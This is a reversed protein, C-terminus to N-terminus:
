TLEDVKSQLERRLAMRQPWPTAQWARRAIRRARKGRHPHILAEYRNILIATRHNM